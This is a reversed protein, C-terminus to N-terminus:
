AGCRLAGRDVPSGAVEPTSAGARRASPDILHAGGPRVTLAVSEGVAPLEGGRVEVELLPAGPVEVGVLVHDGRFRRSAVRGRIPGDPTAV